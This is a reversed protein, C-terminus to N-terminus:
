LMKQIDDHHLDEKGSLQKLKAKDQVILKIEDNLAGIVEAIHSGKYKQWVQDKDNLTRKAESAALKQNKSKVPKIVKDLSGDEPVPLYDFVTSQYQYDHILPTIMDLTRDCIM